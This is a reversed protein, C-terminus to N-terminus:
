FIQKFDQIKEKIVKEWGTETVKASIRDNPNQVEGM